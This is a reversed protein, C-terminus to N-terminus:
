DQLKDEIATVGLVELGKEIESQLDYIKEMREPGVITIAESYRKEWDESDHPDIYKEALLLTRLGQFAYNYLSENIIEQETEKIASRQIIVDDAGKCLLLIRGSEGEEVIVSM